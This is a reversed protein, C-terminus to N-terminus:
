SGNKKPIKDSEKKERTTEYKRVGVRARRNTRKMASNYEVTVHHDHLSAGNLFVRTIPWSRMSWMWSSPVDAKILSEAIQIAVHDEGLVKGDADIVLQADISHCIGHAVEERAENTLTM